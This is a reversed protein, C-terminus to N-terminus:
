MVMLEEIESRSASRAGFEGVIKGGSMVLVRDSVELVEDLDESVLLVGAGERAKKRLDERVRKATVEDLAKTPNHAVILKRAYELERSVIVKMINGGSLLKVPVKISAAKVEYRKVLELALKSVDSWRLLLGKPAVLVAINEEITNDLSVGYITPSDPIYGVGLKRVIGAGKGTVDLGLLKIRGRDPKRLGMVAHVLEKQGNGAIGAVGVVEGERVVLSAGRVAHEGFDGKVWLDEVELVPKRGNVRAEIRIAREIAEAKEGFMMKRVGDLTARSKEVVGVLKGSRLVAIRDAVELAERVKHTILVISGGRSTFSRFFEYFVRKERSPLYTTAEDVMILKAKLLLARVIEVIQKRTYDLTYAPARPDVEVGLEKSAKRVVEEVRSVRALLGHEQLSLCLNEAVTLSGILQPNQPVMVIGLKVADRPSAIFVRRGDVYIEGEDPTYVGYLIKVLTSKGAGNEGLLALIEGRRVTFSVRDLALAGPFRKTIGRLEVLPPSSFHTSAEERSLPEERERQALLQRIDVKVLIGGM